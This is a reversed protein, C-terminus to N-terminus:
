KHRLMEYFQAQTDAVTTEPKEAEPNDLQIPNQLDYMELLQLKLARLKDVASIGNIKDTISPAKATYDSNRNKGIVTSLAKNEGNVNNDIIISASRGRSMMTYIDKVFQQVHM